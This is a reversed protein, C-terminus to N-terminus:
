PARLRGTTRIKAIKEFPIMRETVKPGPPRLGATAAATAEGGGARRSENTFYFAIVTGVWTALIPLVSGFIGLLLPTSRARCRWTRRRSISFTIILTLTLVVIASGGLALVFPAMRSRLVNNPDAAAVPDAQAARLLPTMLARAGLASLAAVAFIVLLKVM